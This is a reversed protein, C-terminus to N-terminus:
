QGHLFVQAHREQLTIGDVYMAEAEYSRDTSQCAVQLSGSM